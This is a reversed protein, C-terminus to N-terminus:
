ASTHMFFLSDNIFPIGCFQMFCLSSLLRANCYRFNIYIIPFYLYNCYFHVSCLPICTCVAHICTCVAHIYVLSICTVHIIYLELMVSHLKTYNSFTSFQFYNRFHIATIISVDKYAMVTAATM